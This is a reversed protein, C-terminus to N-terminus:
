KSKRTSTTYYAEITDSKCLIAIAAVSLVIAASFFVVRLNFDPDPHENQTLIYMTLGPGALVITNIAFYLTSLVKVKKSKVMLLLSFVLSGGALYLYRDDMPMIGIYTIVACALTLLMVGITMLLGKKAKKIRKEEMLKAYMANSARQNFRKPRSNIEENLHNKIALKESDDLKKTLVFDDEDSMRKKANTQPNYEDSLDELIPKNNKMELSMDDMMVQNKITKAADQEGTRIYSVRSARKKGQDMDELIIGSTDMDELKGEYDYDEDDVIYEPEQPAPAPKEEPQPAQRVPEETYAEAAPAAEANEKPAEKLPPLEFDDAATNAAANDAPESKKGVTIGGTPLDTPAYSPKKGVSIGGSSAPTSVPKKVGPIGNPFMQSAPTSVSIKGSSATETEAAPAPQAAEDHKSVTLPPLGDDTEAETVAEEASPAETQASTAEAQASTAEAQASAEEAEVPQEYAAEERSEYEMVEPPIDETKDPASLIDNIDPKSYVPKETHDAAAQIPAAQNDTSDSTNIKRLPPLEFDFDLLDKDDFDTM